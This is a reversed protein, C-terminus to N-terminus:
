RGEDLDNTGTKKIMDNLKKQLELDNEIGASSQKLFSLIQEKSSISNIYSVYENVARVSDDFELNQSFIQSITKVEDEGKLLVMLEGAEIPKKGNLREIITQAISKNVPNKFLDLNIKEKVKNYIDDQSILYLIMKEIHDIKKDVVINENKINQMKVDRKTKDERYIKKNIQANISDESIGTQNSLIKIYADREIVNDIKSLIESMKNLFTIKGDLSNINIQARLMDMKFQIFTKSNNILGKFKEVGFKRIYEDPDKGEPMQLIKVNLGADNLIEMGRITAAQGATDSDYAIIVEDCYKSMLKAQNETLATGLSAVANNIGFQYLSIADMYGEVIIIKRDNSNKAINLCYLNRSKNFVLTEASNLYKPMADKTTRGGFGIVKGKVDIIPFIIRDRFVDFISNGKSKKALGAKIILDQSFGKSLLYKNLSDWQDLSYGLGFKKITNQNLGRKVLYEEAYKGAPSVLNQHYFRAAEVNLEYIKEKLNNKKKLDDSIDAEPLEIRARKALIEIAETFTINEVKMIFSIANGGESCGFCHYIQKEQSVSFSPSKENHFPCLGFYNRGGKKLTVYESIVDVIDISTRIEEIIEDPIFSRM